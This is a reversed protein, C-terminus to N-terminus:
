TVQIKQIDKLQEYKCMGFLCDEIFRHRLQICKISINQNEKKKIKNKSLVHCKEQHDFMKPTHASNTHPMTANLVPLLISHLICRNTHHHFHDITHQIYYVTCHRCVLEFNQKVTLTTM